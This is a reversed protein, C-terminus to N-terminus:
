FNNPDIDLESVVLEAIEVALVAARLELRPVTHASTPALKAKGIIFGVHCRGEGDTVKLYAVAAIAKVSADSFVDTHQASSLCAATYARPIELQELSQLSDRWVIWEMKKDASLPADWDSVDSTLQRLLHKGQIIVPAVLGLQDLSSNTALM